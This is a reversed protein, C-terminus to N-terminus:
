SYTQAQNEEQAISLCTDKRKNIANIFQMASIDKDRVFSNM